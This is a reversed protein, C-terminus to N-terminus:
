RVMSSDLYWAGGTGQVEKKDTIVGGNSGVLSALRSARKKGPDIIHPFVVYTILKGEDEHVYVKPEGYNRLENPTYGYPLFSSYGVEFAGGTNDSYALEVTGNSASSTADLLDSFHNKVFTAVVSNMVRVQSAANIDQIEQLREASKKYLTPTVMAILGLMALAEVLLTGKEDSKNFFKKM